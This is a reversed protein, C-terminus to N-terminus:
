ADDGEWAAAADLILRAAVERAQHFQPSRFGSLWSLTFLEDSVVLLGAVPVRRFHGAAFLAALEMEVALIGEAQCHRVFDVTERYFADTTWIPGAHWPIEAKALRSALDGYLGPDPRLRTEAAPAYHRSTGDGPVAADPLVCAGIQVGELLSGCWGFSLVMRAGLVILKELMLVAFPAGLAPAVVTIPRGGWSGQSLPCNLLQRTALGAGILQCLLDFDPQTFTLVVRPTVPTENRGAKPNIIAEQPPSWPIFPPSAAIPTPKKM